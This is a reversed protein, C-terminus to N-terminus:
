SALEVQTNNIMYPLESSGDVAKIAIDAFGVLRKNNETVFVNYVRVVSFKVNAMNKDILEATISETEGILKSFKPITVIDGIKCQTVKTTM